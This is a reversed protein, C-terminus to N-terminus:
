WRVTGVFPCCQIDGRVNQGRADEPLPYAFQRCEPEIAEAIHGKRDLREAPSRWGSLALM